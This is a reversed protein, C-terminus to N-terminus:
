DEGGCGQLRPVGANAWSIHVFSWANVLRVLDLAARGDDRGQWILEILAADECDHPAEIKVGRSCDRCRACECGHTCILIKSWNYDFM